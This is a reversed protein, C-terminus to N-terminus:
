SSMGHISRLISDRIVDYLNIVHQSSDINKMTIRLAVTNIEISAFDSISQNATSISQFLSM